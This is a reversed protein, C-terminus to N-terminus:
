SFKGTEGIITVCPVSRYNQDLYMQTKGQRQIRDAANFPGSQTEIYTVYFRGQHGCVHGDTALYGWETLPGNQAVHSDQTMRVERVLELGSEFSSEVPIERYIALWTDMSTQNFDSRDDQRCDSYLVGIYSSPLVALSLHYAIPTSIDDPTRNVSMPKSWNWGGDRSISILVEPLLDARTTGTWMVYLSGTRPHIEISPGRSLIRDGRSGRILGAETYEYGGTYVRCNLDLRTIIIATQSWTRGQDSSRVLALDVVRHRYPFTDRNYDDVSADPAAYERIMLNIWDGSWSQQSQPLASLISQRIRYNIRNSSGLLDPQPDYLLRSGGWERGDPSSRIRSVTSHAGTLHFENTRLLLSNLSESLDEIDGLNLSELSLPILFPETWTIGNDTSNFMALGSPHKSAQSLVVATLHIKTEMYRLHVRAIRSYPHPITKLRWTRGADESHAMAVYVAGGNSLVEQCWAVVQHEPNTPNVGFCPSMATNLFLTTTINTISYQTMDAPTLKGPPFGIPQDYLRMKSNGRNKSDAPANGTRSSRHMQRAKKESRDPKLPRQYIVGDQPCM